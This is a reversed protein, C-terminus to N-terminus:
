DILDLSCKLGPDSCLLNYRYVKTVMPRQASLMDAVCLGSFHAFLVPHHGHVPVRKDGHAHSLSANSIRMPRTKGYNPPKEMNRHCLPFAAEHNALKISPATHFATNKQVHGCIVNQTFGNLYIKGLRSLNLPGRHEGGARLPILNCERAAIPPFHIKLPFTEIHLSFGVERFPPPSLLFVRIKAVVSFLSAPLCATKRSFLFIPFLSSRGFGAWSKLGRRSAWDCGEGPLGGDL